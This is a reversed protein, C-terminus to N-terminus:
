RLIVMKGYNHEFYKSIDTKSNNIDKFDSSNLMDVPKNNDMVVVKYLYVGNALRDGYQDTGNWAYTTRNLGIKLPGLEEKQIERVVQGRINLIQIKIKDPVKEGTLTFIFQTSTSFPNPYNLVQSIQMKTIVKFGIKYDYRANRGSSNGSKDADKVILEYTGDTLTPTYSISALNNQSSTAPTFQVNEQAFYVPNINGTPDKLYLQILSTDNLLLFQNEDKLKIQIQPKSAVLENNLIHVGDFTVDLLPNIEDPKTYFSTQLFNNFDYKETLYGTGKPNIEIQVQNNRVFYSPYPLTFNIKGNQLANLPAVKQTFTQNQSGSTLIMKVWFSDMNAPSVNTVGFGLNTTEGTYISDKLEYYYDKNVLLEPVDEEYLVRWFNLQSPNRNTNDKSYYKLKLKPYQSASIGALSTDVIDSNFSFLLNERNSNDIGFISVKNTDKSPSELAQLNHHYSGWKKVPGIVTSSMGGENWNGIININGYTKTIFDTGNLQYPTYSPDNKRYGFILPAKITGNTFNSINQLGANTFYSTLTNDWKTYDPKKLTYFILYDGTPVQNIFNMLVTTWKTNPLPHTSPTVGTDPFVFGERPIGDYGFQISGYSGYRAGNIVVDNSQKAIGTKGDIWIVNLGSGIRGAERLVQVRASNLYWEVEYTNSSGDVRIYINKLDDLFQFSRDNKLQLNSFNDKQYQFYHSQNWGGKTKGKLYIFSSTHWVMPKKTYTSDIGTRWYYVTSDKLATNLFWSFVSGDTIKQNTRLLPSNFLETTDIQIIYNKSTKSLNTISSYLTLSDNGIVSFEYPFIPFIDEAEILVELGNKVENNQESIESVQDEAEIKINFVNLGLGANEDKTPIKIEFTDKFYTAPVIKEYLSTTGNNLREIKLKIDKKIAKGLNQVMVFISFSDMTSTVTKPSIYFSNKDIYYDPQAYQNMPISPDGNINYELATTYLYNLDSNVENVLSTSSQRALKGISNNYLNTNMHRYFWKSYNYLSADLAFNTSALFAIAGKQKGTIFQESYSPASSYVNGSNCGNALFIPYKGKNKFNGPDSIGVDFVTASSHGFFTILSVGKNIRNELDIATEDPAIDTGNKFLSLVRAGTLTDKIGQEFEKLNAKFNQQQETGTGGGLHIAWKMYEKNEPNQFIPATKNYEAYYEKLKDLYNRVEYPNFVSLRGINVFTNVSSDMTALLLDSPHQGFSTVHLSNYLSANYGRIGHPAYSKGILLVNEMATDKWLSAFQLFKRISLPHKPHGFAFLNDLDEQFYTSVKFNGGAISEKFTKYEDIVNQNNSDKTLVTSSIIIFNGKKIPAFNVNRLNSIIGIQSENTIYLKNEVSSSDIIATFNSSNPYTYRKLKTYDTIIIPTNNTVFNSIYFKQIQTSPFSYFLYNQLGSFNYTRPYDLQIFGLAYGHNNSIKPVIKLANTALLGQTPLEYNYTIVKSGFFSTDKIKGTNWVVDLQHTNVNKAFLRFTLKSNIPVDLKAQTANINNSAVSNIGWGEGEDYEPSVVYDTASYYYRRGDQFANRFGVIEKRICFSSIDNISSTDTSQPLIFPNNAARLTLFYYNSDLFYSQTPNLNFNPNKYLKNDITGDKIEGYFEIYDNSTPPAITWSVYIPIKVGNNFLCIETSNANAIAPAINQLTSYPIRYLRTQAVAIKLHPKTADIWENGYPAQSQTSKCSFFLLSFLLFIRMANIM